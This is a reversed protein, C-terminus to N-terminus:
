ECVLEFIFHILLTAFTEVFFSVFVLFWLRMKKRVHDPLFRNAHAVEELHKQKHWKYNKKLVFNRAEVLSEVHWDVLEHVELGQSDFNNWPAAGHVSTFLISTEKLVFVFHKCFLAQHPFFLFRINIFNVIWSQVKFIHLRFSSWKM